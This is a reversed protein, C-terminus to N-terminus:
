MPYVFCFSSYYIAFKNQQNDFHFYQSKKQADDQGKVILNESRNLNDGNIYM